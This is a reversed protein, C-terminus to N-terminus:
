KEAWKRFFIDVLEIGHLKPYNRVEAGIQNIRCIKTCCITDIEYGRQKWADWVVELGDELNQISRWSVYGGVTPNIYDERKDTM